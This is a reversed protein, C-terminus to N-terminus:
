DRTVLSCTAPDPHPKGHAGNPVGNAGAGNMQQQSMAAKNKSFEQFEQFKRVFNQLDV